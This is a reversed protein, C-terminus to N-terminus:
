VALQLVDRKVFINKPCKKWIIHNLAENANQTLGHLCRSLLSESSLDQFIPFLENKIVSPLNIRQKYQRKGTCKDSQWKCWSKEGTPCFQHCTEEDTIDSCHYLVAGVAKRMGQLDGMNQRTAMGYYNQLTNVAKDTLRGKGSVGKGDALKKGKLSRRLERCRSGVRKQIHGICEQKVIATGSGYPNSKVVEQFASSDGDGLYTTYQLKHKEVSRKFMQVAGVSEMSGSSKTHNVQCRHKVKWEEYKAHDERKMWVECSKCKKSLIHFDLCKGTSSSLLTVMGNLSSYGRKQWTGDVSVQCDVIENAASNEVSLTEHLEKGAELISEEAVTTYAKLLSENIKQFNNKTMPPPMNMFTSFTSLAKHGKGIERFALAMRLNVDFPQKGPSGNVKESLPSSFFEEKWDCSSCDFELTYCFGKKNKLLHSFKVRSCCKPCRAITHFVQELITSNILLYCGIEDTIEQQEIDLKLKKASTCTVDDSPRPRSKPPQKSGSIKIYRNGHFSRKKNRGTSRGM